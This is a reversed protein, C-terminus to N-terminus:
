RKSEKAKSKWCDCSRGGGLSEAYRAVSECRPTHPAEEIVRELEAVRQKYSDRQGQFLQKDHSELALERELEEVRARLAADHALLDKVGRVLQGPQDYEGRVALEYEERTLIEGGDALPAFAVSEGCDDCTAVAQTRKLHACREEPPAPAPPQPKPLVHAGGHGRPKTCYVGCLGYDCRPIAPDALCWGEHAPHRGTACRESPSPAPPMFEGCGCHKCGFGRLHAHGCGCRESPAPAPANHSLPEGDDFHASSSRTPTSAPAPAVFAHLWRNVDHSWKSAGCESEDPLKYACRESPAPSPKKECRECEVKM